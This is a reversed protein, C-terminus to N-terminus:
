RRWEACLRSFNLSLAEFKFDIEGPLNNIRLFNALGHNISAELWVLDCGEYYEKPALVQLHITEAQLLESEKDVHQSARVDHRCFIYLVGYKLIEMAAYLPTDSAIKLEIFEYAKSGTKHVLDIARKRDATPSTLGTAVPVQNFWGKADPWIEVPVNVIARELSVEPSDNVDGIRTQKELRWIEGSRQHYKSGDWNERIKEYIEAILAASDLKTMPMDSLRQCSAKHKHHPAKGIDKLCLRSDILNNVGDLIGNGMSNEHDNPM